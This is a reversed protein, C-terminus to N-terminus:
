ANGQRQTTQPEERDCLALLHSAFSNADIAGSLWLNVHEYTPLPVRRGGECAKMYIRCYGGIYSQAVTSRSELLSFVFGGKWNLTGSNAEWSVKTPALSLTQVMVIM